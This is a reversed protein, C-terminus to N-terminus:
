RAPWRALPVFAESGRGGVVPRGAAELWVHAALGPGAERRAGYCLASAFGRRALLARGALAQAFCAPKWPARAAAAEVAWAIRTLAAADPDALARAGSQRETIANFPRVRLALSAAALRGLAEGALAWDRLPRRM